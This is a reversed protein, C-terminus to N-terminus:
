RRFCFWRKSGERKIKLVKMIKLIKKQQMHKTITANSKVTKKRCINRNYPSDIKIDDRYRKITTDSFDLQKSIEKHTLKPENSKIKMFKLIANQKYVRMISNSNLKESKAAM